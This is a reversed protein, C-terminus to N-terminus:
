GEGSAVKPEFELMARKWDQPHDRALHVFDEGLHVPRMVGEVLEACDTLRNSLSNVVYDSAWLEEITETLMLPLFMFTGHALCTVRANTLYSIDVDLPQKEWVVWKNEVLWKACPNEMDQCILRVPQESERYKELMRKYFYLPPQTVRKKKQLVIDGSRIYVVVEERLDRNIDLKLLPKIYQAFDKKRQKFSLKIKHKVFYYFFVGKREPLSYHHDESVVIENGSIHRHNPFRIVNYQGRRAIEICNLLQILNNNLRGSWDTIRLINM